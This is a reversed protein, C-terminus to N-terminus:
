NPRAAALEIALPIGDRRRCIHTVANANQATLAFDPKVTRARDVFLRISEYALLSEERTPADTPVSLTPVHWVSEGSLNLPERSTALIKLHPCERLLADALEACAATLHECNDLVLLLQRGRLFNVLSATTTQQPTEKVGLSKVISLAILAANSVNALEIWWVGDRCTDLADLATQIALRTKGSGGAGTLTLLRSERLSAKVQALETKRGIFSTLPVPLNTIRAADTHALTPSQKIWHYLSQTEPAPEVALEDRPARVCAAYQDLATPRNGRAMECFM